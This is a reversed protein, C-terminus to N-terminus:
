GGRLSAEFRRELEPDEVMRRSWHQSGSTYEALTVGVRALAVRLDGSAQMLRTVQAFQDLPIPPALASQAAEYAAAYASLLPSMGDETEDIAASLRAQWHVDIVDWRAEDIGRRALVEARATGAAALEAMVRAYAEIDLDM